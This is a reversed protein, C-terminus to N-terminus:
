GIRAVAHRLADLAAARSTGAGHIVAQVDAEPFCPPGGAGGARGGASSSAPPLPPPDRAAVGGGAAQPATLRPALEAAAAGAPTSAPMPFAAHMRLLYRLQLGLLPHQLGLLARVTYYALDAFEATSRADWLGCGADGADGAPLEGALLAGALGGPGGPAQDPHRTLLLLLLRKFEGYAEPYADLALPALEARACALAAEPNGGSRLLEVFKQKKARFVLRVDELAAPCVERMIDLGSDVDGALLAERM